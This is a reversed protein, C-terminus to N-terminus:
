GTIKGLLKVVQIVLVCPSARVIEESRRLFDYDYMILLDLIIQLVKLKLDEPASQVQGLFLQFSSLAM